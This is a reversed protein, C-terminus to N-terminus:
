QKRVVVNDYHVKWLNPSAFLLLGMAMVADNTPVQTITLPTQLVVNGDFTISVNAPTGASVGPVLTADVHTWQGLPLGATLPHSMGSMPGGDPAASEIFRADTPTVVTFLFNVFGFSVAVLVAANADNSPLNPDGGYAEMYVDFSLDMSKMHGLDKSLLSVSEEVGGDGGVSHITDAYFSDPQSLAISHDLRGDCFRSTQQSDWGKKLDGEDFDECFFAPPSLSACFPPAEAEAEGGVDAGGADTVGGGDGPTGEVFAAGGCHVAFLALAVTAAGAAAFLLRLARM